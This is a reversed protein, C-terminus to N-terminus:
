DLDATIGADLVAALLLRNNPQPLSLIPSKNLFRPLPPYNRM